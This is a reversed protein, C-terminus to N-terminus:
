KQSHWTKMAQVHAKVLQPLGLDGELQVARAEWQLPNEPQLACVRPYMPEITTACLGLQGVAHPIKGSWYGANAPLNKKKKKFVSGGPFSRPKKLYIFQYNSFIAFFFTSPYIFGTSCRFHSSHQQYYWIYSGM